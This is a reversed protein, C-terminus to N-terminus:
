LKLTPQYRPIVLKEVDKALSFYQKSNLLEYIYSRANVVNGKWHILVGKYFKLNVSPKDEGYRVLFLALDREYATLKLRNHLQLVENEDKLMVALYTIPQLSINNKKSTDYVIEFNKINPNEPLGVYRFNFILLYM